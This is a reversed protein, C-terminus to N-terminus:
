KFGTYKCHMKADEIDSDHWNGSRIRKEDLKETIKNAKPLQFKFFFNLIEIIIDIPRDNLNKEDSSEVHSLTCESIM